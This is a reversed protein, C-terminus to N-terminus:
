VMSFEVVLDYNKSLVMPIIIFDEIIGLKYLIEYNILLLKSIYYFNM